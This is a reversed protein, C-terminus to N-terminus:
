VPQINHRSYVCEVQAWKEEDSELDQNNASTDFLGIKIDKHYKNM